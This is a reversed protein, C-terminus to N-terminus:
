IYMTRIDIIHIRFYMDFGLKNNINCTHIHHMYAHICAHMYTHIVTYSYIQMDTYLGFYCEFNIWIPVDNYQGGTTLYPRSSLQEISVDAVNSSRLPYGIKLLIIWHIGILYFDSELDSELRGM